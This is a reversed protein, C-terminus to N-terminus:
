EVTGSSKVVKSACSNSCLLPGPPFLVCFALEIMNLYVCEPTSIPFFCMSKNRSAESTMPQLVAAVADMMQLPLPEEGALIVFHQM